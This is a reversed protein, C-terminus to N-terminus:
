WVCLWFCLWVSLRVFRWIGLWVNSRFGLLVPGSAQDFVTCFVRGPVYGSGFCFYWVGKGLFGVLCWVLLMVLFRVLFKGFM